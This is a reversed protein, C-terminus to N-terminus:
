VDTDNAENQNKAHTQLNEPDVPKNGAPAGSAGVGALGTGQKKGSHQGDHRLETSTQGQGPHGWGKHVDASTAGAIGAQAINDRAGAEDPNANGEAAVNPAESQAANPEFLRDKPATGIPVQQASFEPVDDNPSAHVGPAHGTTMLPESGPKRATFEGGKGAASDANKSAMKFSTKRAINM